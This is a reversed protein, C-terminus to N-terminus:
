PAKWHIKSELFHTGRVKFLYIKDNFNFFKWKFLWISYNKKLKIYKLYKENLNFENNNFKQDPM